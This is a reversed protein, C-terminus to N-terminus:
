EFIGEPSSGRWGKPHGLHFYDALIAAVDYQMLPGTIDGPKVGRGFMFFPTELDSIVALGHTKNHGGHDSTIIFLTDDIIGAKDCADVISEIITDLYTLETMYDNTYWGISHGTKDPYDWFFAAIAPKKEQIYSVAADTMDASGAASIEFKQTYNFDTLDFLYKMGEWQYLYGMEHDPFAERYISFFSPFLGKEDSFTINFAPKRSDWDIYGHAEPGAGKFMTAWNCASSSPLISRKKLTWASKAAMKKLFPMEANEFSSSGWGDFGLIIVHTPSVKM